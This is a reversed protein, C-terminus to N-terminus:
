DYLTSLMQRSENILGREKAEYALNWISYFIVKIEEQSCKTLFELTVLKTLTLVLQNIVQETQKPDM